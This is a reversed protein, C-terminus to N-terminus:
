RCHESKATHQADGVTQDELCVFEFYSFAGKTIGGVFKLRFSELQLVKANSVVKQKNARKKGRPEVM